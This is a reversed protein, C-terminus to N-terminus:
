RRAGRANISAPAPDVQLDEDRTDILHVAELQAAPGHANGRELMLFRKEDLAAMDGLADNPGELRATGGLGPCRGPSRVGEPQVPRFRVPDRVPQGDGPSASAM